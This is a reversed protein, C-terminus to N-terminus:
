LGLASTDFIRLDYQEEYGVRYMNKYGKDWQVQVCMPPVKSASEEHGIEVVTGLHGEGGDQDGWSWNQGRVVRIGIDFVMGAFGIKISLPSATNFTGLIKKKWRYKAHHFSIIYLQM